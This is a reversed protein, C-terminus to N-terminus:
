LDQSDGASYLMHMTWSLRPYTGQESVRVALELVREDSQVTWGIQRGDLEYGDPLSDGLSRLYEEDSASGADCAAALADLRTLDEEARANLMYIEKTVEVSRGALDLDNRSSKLSLLAFSSIGLIFVLLTLSAAGPGFGIRSNKKM